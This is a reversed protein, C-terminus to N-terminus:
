TREVGNMSLCHAVAYLKTSGCLIRTVVAHSSREARQVAFELGWVEHALCVRGLKELFCLSRKKKENWVGFM